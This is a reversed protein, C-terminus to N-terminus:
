YKWRSAAAVQDDDLGAVAAAEGQRVAIVADALVPGLAARLPENTRFEEVAEDLSAPLRRVGRADAEEADLHAPDGTIEPPLRADSALGDLGAAILCGLTLYPNAALDVPKVELNAAQDRHGATGTIVRLGAERTERGWATFVGAWQSPKLRLHSAPSPATVATLAPLHALVGAAFSEAEPRMGHRRDGGAHLNVGDRWASLHVHGGNGVGQGLVAPAFSVALGHRRAVARITQRVLVSRDAAAVPDLASVSLEFQGAAYEPHLQDVGVGQRALAALLDAACDSLEVQRTAGYAPGTVAPVFEGDTDPPQAVSWEIEISARFTIGHRGAAEQVTRRLFTRSCAPHREGEQTIRDVPAWAWGPQGSLEVLQDLDPYLRLDGDPSGLVDTTVISDNALFTDFVPSMGVGWAAASTLGATPITKVRAIGATDVYALVIGHVGRGSLEDSLAGAREVDGPRGGPVPDALTTM